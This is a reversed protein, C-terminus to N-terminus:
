RRGDGVLSRWARELEWGDLEGLAHHHTLDIHIPTISILGSAVAAHDTGPEDVIGDPRSTLWYTVRGCPELRREVENLWCAGGLRALAFGRVTEPTGAPVNVNLLTGRPLGKDLVLLTLYVAVRAALEFDPHEYEKLSVALAPSGLIAAEVAASVTGSCFVDTGLNAGRNIGSIVLDPPNELLQRFAVKVCDAPTGRVAWATVADDEFAHEKVELGQGLTISHGSGSRETDPAVVVVRHPTDARLRRCLAELGPAEIGDDNTLLITRTL